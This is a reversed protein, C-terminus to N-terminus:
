FDSRGERGMLEEGIGGAPHFDIVRREERIGAIFERYSGSARGKPACTAQARRHMFFGFAAADIIISLCADCGRQFIRPKRCSELSPLDSVFRIYALWIFGDRIQIYM